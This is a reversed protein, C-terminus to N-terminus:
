AAEKVLKQTSAALIANLAATILRGKETLHYSRRRPTKRILGHQRLLRLHRTVRAVLQRDTRQGAWATRRLKHRLRANTMGSVAFLPDAIAQLLERDKGTPDLARIARGNRVHRRTVTALLDGVPRDDHLTAMQNMFRDNTEQSVKARLPIDAVGKRM